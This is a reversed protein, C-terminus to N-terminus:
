TSMDRDEFYVMLMVAICPLTFLLQLVPTKSCMQKINFLFFLVLSIALLIVALVNTAFMNVVVAFPILFSQFYLMKHDLDM